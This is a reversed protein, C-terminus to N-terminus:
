LNYVVIEKWGTRDEDVRTSTAFNMGIGQRSKLITKRGRKRDVKEKKGRESQGTSDDKRLWFGQSRASDGTEM